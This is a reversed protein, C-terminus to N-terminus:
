HLFHSILLIYLSESLFLLYFTGRYYADKWSSKYPHLPIFEGELWKIKVHKLYPEALRLSSPHVPISCKRFLLLLPGFYKLFFNELTMKNVAGV